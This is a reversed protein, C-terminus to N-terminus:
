SAQMDGDISVSNVYWMLKVGLGSWDEYPNGYDIHLYLRGGRQRIASIQRLQPPVFYYADCLEQLVKDTILKKQRALSIFNSQWPLTHHGSTPKTKNLHAILIQVADDVQQASLDGQSARYELERWVRPEGVESALRNEILRKTSLVRIPQGTPLLLYRAGMGLGPTLLLLVGWIILLKSPSSCGRIGLWVITAVALVFPGITSGISLVQFFSEPDEVWLKRMIGLVVSALMFVVLMTKLSFRM